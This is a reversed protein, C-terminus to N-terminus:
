GIIHPVLWTALVAVAIVFVPVAIARWPKRPDVGLWRRTVTSLTEGKVIAIGEAIGFSVAVSALWAIWFIQWGSM